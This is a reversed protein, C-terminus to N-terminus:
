WDVANYRRTALNALARLLAYKYSNVKRDEVLISELTEIPRLGGETKHATFLMLRAETARPDGSPLLDFERILDLGLRSFFFQYQEPSRVTYPIDGTDEPARTPVTILLLGGVSLQQKLAYLADLLASDPLHHLVLACLVADYQHERVDKLDPLSGVRLRNEPIRFHRRGRAILEENPEAGRVDFGEKSLLHVDRGLGAGVDLIKAGEQLLDRLMDIYVPREEVASSLLTEARDTYYSLTKEDVPYGETTAEYEKM